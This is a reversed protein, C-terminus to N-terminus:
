CMVLEMYHVCQQETTINTMFIAGNRLLLIESKTCNPTVFISAM